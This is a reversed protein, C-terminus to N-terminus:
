EAAESREGTSDDPDRELRRGSSRRVGLVGISPISKVGNGDGGEPGAAELGPGAPEAADPGPRTAEAGNAGPKVPEAGGSRRGSCRGNLESVGEAPCKRGVSRGNLSLMVGLPFGSVGASRDMKADPASAIGPGSTLDPKTGRLGLAGAGLGSVFSASPGRERMGGGIGGLRLDSSAFRSDCSEAAETDSASDGACVGGRRGAGGGGCGRRAGGGRGGRFRRLRESSSGERAARARAAPSASSLRVGSACARATASAWATAAASASLMWSACASERASAEGGAVSTGDGGDGAREGEDPKAERARVLLPLGRPGRPGLPAGGGTGWRGHRRGAPSVGTCLRFTDIAVCAVVPASPCLLFTEPALLPPVCPCCLRLVDATDATDATDAAAAM